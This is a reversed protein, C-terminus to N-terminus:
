TLWQIIKSYICNNIEYAICVVENVASKQYCMRLNFSNPKFLTVANSIVENGDALIDKEKSLYDQIQTLIIPLRERITYYGFSRYQMQFSMSYSTCLYNWLYCCYCFYRRVYRKYRASLAVNIPTVSDVIQYKLDFDNM